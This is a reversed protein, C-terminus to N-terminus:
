FGIGGPFRPPSTISAVDNAKAAAEVPSPVRNGAREAAPTQTSPVPIDSGRRCGRVRWRASAPDSRDGMVPSESLLSFMPIAAILVSTGAFLMARAVSRLFWGLFREHVRDM